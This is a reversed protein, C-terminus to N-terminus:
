YSFRRHGSLIQNKKNIIIPQLLGVERISNVLDEINSLDYIDSNQPHHQLDKTKVVM